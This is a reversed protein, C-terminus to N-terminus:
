TYLAGSVNGMLTGLIIPRSSNQFDGKSGFNRGADTKPIKVHFERAYTYVTYIYIYVCLM